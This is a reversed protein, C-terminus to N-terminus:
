RDPALLMLKVFCFGIVQQYENIRLKSYHQQTEENKFLYKSYFLVFDDITLISM